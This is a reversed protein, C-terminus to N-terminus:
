RGFAFRQLHKDACTPQFEHIMTDCVESRLYISSGKKYGYYFKGELLAFEGRTRSDPEMRLTKKCYYINISVKKKM